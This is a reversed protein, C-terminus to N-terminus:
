VVAQMPPVSYGHRLRFKFQGPDALFVPRLQFGADKQFVRRLRMMGGMSDGLVIQEVVSQNNAVVQQGQFRQLLFKRSLDLTHEDVWRVVRPRSEFVEVITDLMRDPQAQDTISDLKQMSQQPIVARQPHRNIVVLAM